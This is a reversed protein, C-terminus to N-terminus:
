PTLTGTAVMSGPEMDVTIIVWLNTPVLFEPITFALNYNGAAGITQFFIPNDPTVLGWKINVDIQAAVLGTINLALNSNFAPGVYPIEGTCGATIDGACNISFTNHEFTGIPGTPAAWVLGFWFPADAVSIRLAQECSAGEDDTFQVRFDYDPSM